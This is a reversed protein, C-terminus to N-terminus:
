LVPFFHWIGSHRHRRSWGQHRHGAIYMTWIFSMKFLRCKHTKRIVFLHSQQLRISFSRNRGRAFEKKFVILKLFQERSYRLGQLYLKSSLSNQMLLIRETTTVFMKFYFRSFLPLPSLLGGMREAGNLLIFLAFVVYLKLEERKINKSM